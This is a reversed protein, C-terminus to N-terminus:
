LWLHAATQSRSRWRCSAACAAAAALSTAAKRALRQLCHPCTPPHALGRPLPAPVTYQHTQEDSLAQRPSRASACLMRCACAEIGLLVMHRVKLTRWCPPCFHRGGRGMRTRARWSSIGHCPRGRSSSCSRRWRCRLLPMTSFQIMKISIPASMGVVVFLRLVNAPMADRWRGPADAAFGLLRAASPLLAQRCGCLDISCALLCAQATKPSSAGVCVSRGAM